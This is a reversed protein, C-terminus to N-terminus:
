YVVYEKKNEESDIFYINKITHSVEKDGIYTKLNVFYEEASQNIVTDVINQDFDGYGKLLIVAVDEHLKIDDYVRKNFELIIDMTEYKLIVDQVSYDFDLLNNFIHITLVIGMQLYKTVKDEKIGYKNLQVFLQMSKCKYCYMYKKHNVATQKTIKKPIFLHSGCESYEFERMQIKRRKM